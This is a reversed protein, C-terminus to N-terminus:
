QSDWKYADVTGSGILKLLCVFVLAVRRPFVGGGGGILFSEVVVGIVGGLGVSNESTLGIGITLSQSRIADLVFVKSEFSLHIKDQLVHANTERANMSLPTM